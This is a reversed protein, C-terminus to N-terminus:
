KEIDKIGDPLTCLNKHGNQTVLIDDEIRIGGISRYQAAKKWNVYKAYERMKKPADFFYEIFYIGPEITVVMGPELKLYARLNKAKAKLKKNYKNGVDHVDLGLLHGIGHPFFVRHIEKEYLMDIDADKILGLKILGKLITKAAHIHIDLMTVKPSIMRICERKTNLVVEYIEKQKKSFRGSVPITRTMDSAYGDLECGGDILLLDGKECRRTQEVHHLVSANPGSAIITSFALHAAGAKVLEAEFTGQITYEFVGPRTAKIATVFANHSIKNAQNMLNIEEPEKILRLNDLVKILTKKDQHLKKSLSKLPLKRNPLLYVKKYKQSAKKVFADLASTFYVFDTKYIKKAQACNLQKGLWLRHKENIDPIFLCTKGAKPDLVLVHEPKHIGTLYAFYSDQRFKYVVDGNRLTEKPAPVIILGDKLAQVLKKRNKQYLTIM